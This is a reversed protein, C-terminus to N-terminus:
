DTITPQCPSLLSDFTSDLKGRHMKYIVFENDRGEPDEDDKLHLLGYSGPAKRTILELLEFVEHVDESRHNTM